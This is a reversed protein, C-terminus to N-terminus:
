PTVVPSQASLTGSALELNAYGTYYRYLAELYDTQARRAADESALLDTITLLGADYRNQNLRLSERAENISSRTVDIQQRASDLDYYARRVQLQIADTAIERNASIRDKLAAQRALQARKAGGEFLDFTIQVGATWDNGGGGSVFTPNDAEWNAFANVRPGFMSKAMALSQQQAAEESRVQLLDPRKEAATKEAEPLSIAPLPREALTEAPDFQDNAPLGMAISLQARALSLNNQARVLEQQRTASRVQSSLYDSQIAVGSDVRNKSRDLISQTTKMAQHAVELESRALLVGYYSDIVRAMIEQDTRELEHGAADKSREARNVAHWSAFSDFLNWTGGFGTAFNTFPTPKNLVNLAFDADTFRQQRLKSGFVYVPDNGRTASETFGLRPL